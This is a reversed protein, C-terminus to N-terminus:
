ARRASRGPRPERPRRRAARRASPPATRRRPSRAGPRAGRRRLGFGINREVDLHPFLAYDQFVMGIRRKEVPVWSGEGAVVAGGVEVSGEDPREFGAITRLLTTKGSGSPGLVAFLEGTAVEVTVGALARVSGFAKSVGTLRVSM